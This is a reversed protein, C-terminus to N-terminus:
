RGEKRKVSSIGEIISSLPNYVVARLHFFTELNVSIFIDIIRFNYICM